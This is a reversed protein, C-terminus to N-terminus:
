LAAVVVRKIGISLIRTTVSVQIAAGELLDQDLEAVLLPRDIDQLHVAAYFFFV